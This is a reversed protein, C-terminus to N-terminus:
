WDKAGKKRRRKAPWCSRRSPRRTRSCRTSSSCRASRRCAPRRSSASASRRRRPRRGAGAQGPRKKARGAQKQDQDQQEDSRSTQKQDQKQDDKNETRGTQQKKQEEQQKSRACRWSSTAARTPTTRCCRAARRPLGPDRGRLGAEPLAHQRPQLARAPAAALGADEGLADSSADRGRRVQREQLPRRGPQLPGRPDQPGAARRRRSPRSRRRTTAASTSAERGQQPSGGRGCCCSTRSRAADAGRRRPPAAPAPRRPSRAAAAAHALARRARAPLAGALGCCSRGAACPRARARPRGRAAGPLAGEEPVLVRAGADEAGHGRHRLRAASSARTADAILASRPRRHRARDGGADGIDLRSVVVPGAEDRKFGAAAATATSTPCRSAASPAWESRTSWSAPRRRARVAEEVDGELDEGDSVLVMCRTAGSRTWSCSSGRPSARARAVLRARARDGAGADRPLPRARRRRADLPVLPYAEGEFAVLGFRDGELRAISRQLLAQRPSSSATPRCTRPPWPARPTSCSCWTSARASSRRACSAGSRAAGAGPRARGRRALLLASARRLALARGAPARRAGVAPARRARPRADRDRRALWRRSWRGAAPLALLGFLWAPARLDPSMGPAVRLGAGLAAARRWCSRPRPSCSRRSCSATAATPPSSSRRSRSSTSATSSRACRSRTPPASSSAAPASRRDAEAAGRRDAGRTM